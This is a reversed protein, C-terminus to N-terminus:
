HAVAACPGATCDLEYGVLTLSQVFAFNSAPTFAYVVPAKGASVYFQVPQDFEAETRDGFYSALFSFADSGGGKMIVLVQTGSGSFGLIGSVYQIVLRHGAPVAGFTFTCNAGTCTPTQTSQYPIRGPDDIRSTLAPHAASNVVVVNAASPAEAARSRIETLVVGVLAVAGAGVLLRKTLRMNMPIEKKAGFVAGITCGNEVRRILSL